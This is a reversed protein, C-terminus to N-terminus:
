NKLSEFELWQSRKGIFFRLKFSLAMDALKFSLAMDAMYGSKNQGLILSCSSAGHSKTLIQLEIKKALSM